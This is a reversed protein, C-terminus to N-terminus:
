RRTTSASSRSAIGSTTPSPSSPLGRCPSPTASASASSARSTPASPSRAARRGTSTAARSGPDAQLERLAGLGPSTGLIQDPVSLSGQEDAKALLSINPFAGAVGEVRDIDAARAVQILGPGFGSLSPDNVVVHGSFFREGGDFLLNFKEAMAGMTTLALVGIMIGAVTLANRLKRRTLNRLIEM